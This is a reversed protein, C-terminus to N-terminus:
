IKGLIEAMLSLLQSFLPLSLWLIVASAAIQLTKGLASNGLDNCLLSTIESLLGIGSAKLLISVFTSDFSGLEQLQVLFDIIPELYNFAGLLIMSCAAVTLTSAIDKDKKALILYLILCILALASAKWIFDM